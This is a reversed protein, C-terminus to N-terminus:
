KERIRKNNNKNEQNFLELQHSKLSNDVHKESNVKKRM